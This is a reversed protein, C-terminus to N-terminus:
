GDVAGGDNGFDESALTRLKEGTIRAVGEDLGAGREVNARDEAPLLAHADAQRIAVGADLAALAIAHECRLRAGADLIREGANGLRKGLVDRQQHNRGPQRQRPLVYARYEAGGVHVPRDGLPRRQGMRHLFKGVQHAASVLGHAAALAPRHEELNRGFNPLGFIRTLEIVSGNRRLAGGGIGVRDLRRHAHQQRRFMRQQQRPLAHEVGGRAILKCGQGLENRRRDEGGIRAFARYGFRM